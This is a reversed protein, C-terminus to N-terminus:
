WRLITRVHEVDGDRYKTLHVGRGNDIDGIELSWDFLSFTIFFPYEEDASQWLVSFGPISILGGLDDIDWTKIFNM